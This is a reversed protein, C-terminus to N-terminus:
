AGNTQPAPSSARVVRLGAFRPALWKIPPEPEALGHRCWHTSHPPLGTPEAVQFGSARGRYVQGSYCSPAGEGRFQIEPRSSVAELAVCNRERKEDALLSAYLTCAKTRIWTGWGPLGTEPTKNGRPPSRRCERPNRQRIWSEPRYNEPAGSPKATRGGKAGAASVHARIVTSDFMQVLHARESLSALAEFFTEFVGSRSM